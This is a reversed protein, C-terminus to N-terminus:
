GPVLELLGARQLLSSVATQVAAYDAKPAAERVIFLCDWGPEIMGLQERVAERLLRKGRNRAVASGVRRSATFAFRTLPASNLDHEGAARTEARVVLLVALPHRWAKGMRRVRLVDSRRRLRYRKPLM